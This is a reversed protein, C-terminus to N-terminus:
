MFSSWGAGDLMSDDEDHRQPQQQLMNTVALQLLPM